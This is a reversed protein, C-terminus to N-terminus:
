KTRLLLVWLFLLPHILVLRVWAVWVPTCLGDPICAGLQIFYVHSPIFALLTLSWLLVGLNRWKKSLLLLAIVLELVGSIINILSPFPLYSPILPLYFQPHIFHNSGAVFLFLVLAYRLIRHNRPHISM